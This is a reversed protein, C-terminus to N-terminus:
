AFGAIVHDQKAVAGRSDFNGLGYGRQVHCVGGNAVDFHFDADAGGTFHQTLGTLM